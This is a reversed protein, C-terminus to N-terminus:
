FGKHFRTGRPARHPSRLGTDFGALPAVSARLARKRKRRARLVLLLIPIVLLALTM